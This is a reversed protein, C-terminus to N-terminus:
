SSLVHLRYGQGLLVLLFSYLVILSLQIVLFALFLNFISIFPM